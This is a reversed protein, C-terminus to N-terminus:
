RLADPIVQRSLHILDPCLRHVSETCSFRQIQRWRQLSGGLFHLVTVPFAVNTFTQDFLEHLLRDWPIVLCHRQPLTQDEPATVYHVLSFEYPTVTDTGELDPALTQVAIRFEHLAAIGLLDIQNQFVERADGAEPLDGTKSVTADM